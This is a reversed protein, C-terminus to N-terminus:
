STFMYKPPSGTLGSGYGVSPFLILSHQSACLGLLEGGLMKTKPSHPSQCPSPTTVNQMTVQFSVWAFHRQPARLTVPASRLTPPSHKETNNSFFLLDEQSRVPRPGGRDQRRKRRVQSVMISLSADSPTFTHNLLMVKSTLLLETDIQQRIRLTVPLIICFM